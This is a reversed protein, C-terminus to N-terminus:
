EWLTIFKNTRKEKKDNESKKSLHKSFRQFALDQKVKCRKTHVKSKGHDKDGKTTFVSWIHIDLEM